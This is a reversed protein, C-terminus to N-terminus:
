EGGRQVEIVGRIGRLRNVIQNLGALNKIEITISVLARGQRSRANLSHVKANLANLVTAVDMVLGNRDEATLRLSTVYSELTHEAWEVPIWRAREQENRLANLYNPCDSRHISIGEGRTIFGVISDGPVPTCCRSFRILCNDIGEVLVGQMAKVNRETRREAAENLKDLASRHEQQQTARAVEDRFRNM